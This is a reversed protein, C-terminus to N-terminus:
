QHHDKTSFSYINYIFNPLAIKSNFAIQVTVIGAFSFGKLLIFDKAPIVAFYFGKFL